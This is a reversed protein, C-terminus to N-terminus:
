LIMRRIKIQEENIKVTKEFASQICPEIENYFVPDLYNIKTLMINLKNEQALYGKTIVLLCELLNPDYRKYIDFSKLAHIVSAHNYSKPKGNAIYFDRIFSVGWKLYKNLMYIHLARYYVVERKRTGSYVDVSNGTYKVSWKRIENSWFQAYYNDNM